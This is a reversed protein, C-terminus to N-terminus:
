SESKPSISQSIATYTSEFLQSFDKKSKWFSPEGLRKLIAADIEPPNFEIHFEEISNKFQWFSEDPLLEAPEEEDQSEEVPHEDVTRRHRLKEILQEKSLGRLLFILFPEEDFQEGLLYYVAAIHKCPNAWDPCSCDTDLDSKSPFLNVNVAKFADEIDEPMEGTLLKAAFIAQQAMTDIVKEWDEDLIQEMEIKVRYPKRRTGQVHSIVKGKEIEIDVVQGRRAYSRGRQLRNSWGFSELVSIWRKSWWTSGFSKGRKTKAKIGNEVKKPKAPKYYNWM